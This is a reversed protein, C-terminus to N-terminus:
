AFYVRGVVVVIVTAASINVNAFIACPWWAWDTLGALVFAPSDVVLFVVSFGVISNASLELHFSLKGLVTWNSASDLGCIFKFFGVGSADVSLGSWVWFKVM